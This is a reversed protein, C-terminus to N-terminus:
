SIVRRFARGGAVMLALALVLLAIVLVVASTAAAAPYDFLTFIQQSIVTAIFPTQLGGLLIPTVYFGISLVFVLAAAVLVGGRVLPWVVTVLARGRSAGLVSASALLDRDVGRFVSYLTLVAYPLLSYAIGYVVAFKSYLLSLPQDIVGLDLLVTNVPGNAVLLLLVSYNKVVMGMTFPILATLWVLFRLWGRTSTHLTWALVSGVGITAATVILSDTLTTVLARRSVDDRFVDAYRSMGAGGSSADIFVQAVPMVVFLAVLAVAPLALLLGLLRGGYPSWPRGGTGPGREATGAGTSSTTM